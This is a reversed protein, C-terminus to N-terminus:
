TLTTGKMGAKDIVNQATKIMQELAPAFGSWDGQNKLELLATADKVATRAAPISPMTKFFFTGSVEGFNEVIEAVSTEWDKNQDGLGEAVEKCAAISQDLLEQGSPPM